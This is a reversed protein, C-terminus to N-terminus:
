VAGGGAASGGRVARGEGRRWPCVVGAGAPSFPTCGHSGRGRGRGGGLGLPQALKGGKRQHLRQEAATRPPEGQAVLDGVTGEGVLGPVLREREAVQLPQQHQARHAPGGAPVVRDG